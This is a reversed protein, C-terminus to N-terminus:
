KGLLTKLYSELRNTILLHGNDRPHVLDTTYFYNGIIGQLTDPAYAAHTQSIVDRFDSDYDTFFWDKIGVLLM